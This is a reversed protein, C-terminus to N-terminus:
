RSFAIIPSFGRAPADDPKIQKEDLWVRVGNQKLQTALERVVPKDGSSHSFFVDYTFIPESMTRAVACM